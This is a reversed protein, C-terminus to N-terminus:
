GFMSQSSKIKIVKDIDNVLGSMFAAMDNVQNNNLKIIVDM